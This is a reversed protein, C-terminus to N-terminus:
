DARHRGDVDQVEHHAHQVRDHQRPEESGAALQLDVERRRAHQHGHGPDQLKTLDSLHEQGQVNLPPLLAPGFIGPLQIGGQEVPDHQRRRHNGNTCKRERRQQHSQPDPPERGVVEFRTHPDEAQHHRQHPELHECTHEGHEGVCLVHEAPRFRRANEPSDEPM